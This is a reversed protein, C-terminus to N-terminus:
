LLIEKRTINNIAIAVYIASIIISLSGIPFFLKAITPLTLSYLSIKLIDKYKLKSGNMKNAILGAISIIFANFLLSIYTVLITVIVVIYKIPKAKNLINLAVENDIHKDLYPIDSYKFKYEHGNYRVVMGDKFFASSMDKHVTINKISESDALTKNSNIIVVTSGQEEKYPSEKFDLMSENIEFKFREESLLVKMSNELTNLMFFQLIGLVIGIIVSLTLVYGIAKNLGEKLFLSYEKIKFISIKFRSLFNLKGEM